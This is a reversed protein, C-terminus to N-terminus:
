KLNDRISQILLDMATQNNFVTTHMILNANAHNTKTKVDYTMGVTPKWQEGAYAVVDSFNTDQLNPECRINIWKKAEVIPNTEYIDSIAQVGKGRGVPDLTILMEVQYGLAKLSSTLHAGNWGGLSHGVIYVVDTKNPIKKIVNKEINVVGYIEHFGLYTTLEGNIIRHSFQSLESNAIKQFERSVTLINYYPGSVGLYATKDGAGGIFFVIVNKNNVSGTTLKLVMGVKIVDTTLNNLLKLNNITTGYKKAISTLTDGVIVTHTTINSVTSHKSVKLVQGIKIQDSTLGNISKLEAVTLSYKKALSFLTDGSVVKHTVPNSM